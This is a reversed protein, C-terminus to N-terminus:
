ATNSLKTTQRAVLSLYTDETGSKTTSFALPEPEWRYIASYPENSIQKLRQTRRHVNVDHGQSVLPRRVGASRKSDSSLKKNEHLATTSDRCKKNVIVVINHCLPCTFQESVASKKLSPFTKFLLIFAVWFVFNSYHLFHFQFYSLRAYYHNRISSGDTLQV